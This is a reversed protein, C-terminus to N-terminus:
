RKNEIKGLQDNIERIQEKSFQLMEMSEKLTYPGIARLLSEYPFGREEAVKRVLNYYPALIEEAEKGQKGAHGVTMWVSLTPLENANGTIKLVPDSFGNRTLSGFIEELWGISDGVWNRVRDSASHDIIWNQGTSFGHGGYSYIHSEFVINQKALATEMALTNQINVVRDDRAAALFCPSTKADVYDVPTPLDPECVDLIDRLIAPYVLIAAGPRNRAMTAACAALHGGASFGAVAIKGSDIHWNGAKKKILDVAEDYDELPKPWGGKDKLTYRLIFSQYGAAAYSLAVADAERESCMAYGGGPLVLVAPRTSFGFEGGTDQLFATLTVKRDEHLTITKIQM